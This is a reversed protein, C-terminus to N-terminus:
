SAIADFQSLDLRHEALLWLHTFTRHQCSLINRAICAQDCIYGPLWFPCAQCLFQPAPHFLHQWLIHHGRGKHEKFRQRESGVALDVALRQRSGTRSLEVRQHLVHRGAIREFSREDPNVAPGSKHLAVKFHGPEEPNPVVYPTQVPDVTWDIVTPLPISTARGGAARTNHDRAGTM